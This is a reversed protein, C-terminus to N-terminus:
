GGGFVREAAGSQICTGHRFFGGRPFVSFRILNNGYGNLFQVFSRVARGFPLLQATGGKVSGMKKRTQAVACRYTRCFRRSRDPSARCFRRPPRARARENREAFRFPLAAEGRQQRLGGEAAQPARARGASKILGWRLGAGCGRETHM